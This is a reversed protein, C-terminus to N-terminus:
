KGAFAPPGICSDTYYDCGPRTCFYRWKYCVLYGSLGTPIREVRELLHMKDPHPCTLGEIIADIFPQAVSNGHSWDIADYGERFKENTTHCTADGKM